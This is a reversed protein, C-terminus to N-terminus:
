EVKGMRSPPWIIKIPKGIIHSIPVPGFHRSDTSNFFNDGLVYIYNQPVNYTKNEAGFKIGRQPNYNINNIPIEKIPIDNVYITSGRIEITDYETAVCRKTLVHKSNGFYIQFSVIDGRQPKMKRSFKFVHINRDKLTTEMSVGFAKSIAYHNLFCRIALQSSTGVFLILSLLIIIYKFERCKLIYLIHLICFSIFLSLFLVPYKHCYSSVLITIFFFLNLVFWIRKKIYLHGLGPLILTLLIAFWLNKENESFVNSISAGSLKYADLLNLNSIVIFLLFFCYSILVNVSPTILTWFSLLLFGITTIFLIIGRSFHSAYIQGFGSCIYSLCVIYWPNKILVKNKL